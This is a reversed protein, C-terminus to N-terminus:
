NLAKWLANQGLDEVLRAHAAIEDQTLRTPLAHPRAMIVAASSVVIRKETKAAALSLATQRGGILEIYVEALLESDLLAGHKTRKSNDVGYRRCLGDLSNNAGPHKQRAMMLTDIVREPAIPDKGLYSLEANLFKTDFGANHIIVAADGIFALFSEAIAAFVPKDKLFATSLGHIAEAEAPVNREPNIYVHFTEGTPVHNFLEVAGIEVIRDGQSPDLGTTETDLIIERM